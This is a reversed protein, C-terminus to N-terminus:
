SPFDCGQATCRVVGENTTACYEFTGNERDVSMDCGGWSANLESLNPWISSNGVGECVLVGEEPESVFADDDLCIIVAPLSSAISAKVAAMEAKGRAEQLSEEVVTILPLYTAIIVEQESACYKTEGDFNDQIEKNLTDIFSTEEDQQSIFSEPNEQFQQIRASVKEGLATADIPVCTALDSDKLISGATNKNGNQLFWFVGIGILCLLLIGSSIGLFIKM